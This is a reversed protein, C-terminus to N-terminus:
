SSHQSLPDWRIILATFSFWDTCTELRVGGILQSSGAEVVHAASGGVPSSNSCEAFTVLTDLGELRRFLGTLFM